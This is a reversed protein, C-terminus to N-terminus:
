RDSLTFGAVRRLHRMQGYSKIRKTVVWLTNASTLIPVYTILRFIPATSGTGRWPRFIVFGFLARHVEHLAQKIHKSRPENM